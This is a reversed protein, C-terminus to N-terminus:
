VCNVEGMLEWAGKYDSIRLTVCVEMGLGRVERVIYKIRELGRTSGPMYCWAASRYFGTNGNGKPKCAAAMVTEQTLFRTATLGISHHSYQACYSSGEIYESTKIALTPSQFSRPFSLLFLAIAIRELYFM